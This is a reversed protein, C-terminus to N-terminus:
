RRREVPLADVLTEDPRTRGPLLDEIQAVIDRLGSLARERREELLRTEDRLQDSRLRAAQEIQVAMEEAAERTARAQQEADALLRSAEEDSERRRQGAYNEVASKIDSAYHEADVRIREAEATLQEIRKAADTEARRLIDDVQQRGSVRIEEAAAEAASLIASVRAGVDSVAGSASTERESSSSGGGWAGV